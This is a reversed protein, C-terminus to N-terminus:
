SLMRTRALLEVLRLVEMLVQRDTDHTVLEVVSSLHEWVAEFDEGEQVVGRQPSSTSDAQAAFWFITKRVDGRYRETVSVPETTLHSQMSTGDSTALTPVPLPLLFAAYGTEELTERLAADELTEGINKRGKPLMMELGGDPNQWRILLAKSQQLDLTVTGCSIAFNSAHHLSSAMKGYYQFVV